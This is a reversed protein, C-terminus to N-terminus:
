WAGYGWEGLKWTLLGILVVAGIVAYFILEPQSDAPHRM